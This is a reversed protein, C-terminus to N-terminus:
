MAKFRLLHKIVNEALWQHANGQTFKCDLNLQGRTMRCRIRRLLLYKLFFEIRLHLQMFM